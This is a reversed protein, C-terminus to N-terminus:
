SLQEVLSKLQKGIKSHGEKTLHGDVLFYDMSTVNLEAFYLNPFHSDRGNQFNAFKRGYSNSYFVLVQKRSLSPFDALVHIIQEYHPVFDPADAVSRKIALVPEGLSRGIGELVSPMKAMVGTRRFFIDDYQERSKPGPTPRFSLNESLDNDCYQIVIVDVKDILGSAELRLLERRTGYSAVALNYVRRGLESQLVASFTESDGVGWGMAHSDGLVAIGETSVVRAQAVRGEENFTLTTDFEPNRFHCQDIKPKYILVEDFEVCEAHGQWVNMVSSFYFNRQFSKVPAVDLVIGNVLLLAGVGYLFCVVGVYISAAILTYGAYGVFFRFSTMRSSMREFGSFAKAHKSSCQVM